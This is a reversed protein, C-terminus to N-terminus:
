IKVMHGIYEVKIEGKNKYKETKNKIKCYKIINQHLKDDIGEIKKISTM